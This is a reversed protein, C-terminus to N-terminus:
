TWGASSMREKVPRALKPRIKKAIAGILGSNVSMAVYQLDDCIDSWPHKKEPLPKTEGAKTKGFRYSGNMARALSPCRELDILVAAEGDRQQFLLAEVSSLRADINNSPAPFAPIGLRRLVDFSNEELMNGKAIGSPDGVCAFRLGAYRESYLRPKLSRTVHTELGIDEAIIEELM